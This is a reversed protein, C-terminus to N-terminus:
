PLIMNLKNYLRALAYGDLNELSIASLQEVMKRIEKIVTERDM